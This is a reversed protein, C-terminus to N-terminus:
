FKKQTVACTTSHTLSVGPVEPVRWGEGGHKQLDAGTGFRDDSALSSALSCSFLYTSDWETQERTLM